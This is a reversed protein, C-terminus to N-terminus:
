REAGFFNTIDDPALGRSPADRTVGDPGLSIIQFTSPNFFPSANLSPMSAPIRTGGRTEYDAAVIYIYPNGFPDFFSIQGPPISVAEYDTLRKGDSTGLQNYDWNIYPGRWRRSLPQDPDNSLSANLAVQLYGSGIADGSVDLSLPSLTNGSGSPPYQGTDVEYQAIAIELTRIDSRAKAHRAKVVENSYVGAVITSLVALIALVVMLEIMSVANRSTSKM